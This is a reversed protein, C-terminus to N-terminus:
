FTLHDQNAFKLREETNWVPVDLLCDTKVHFCSWLTFYHEWGLGFVNKKKKVPFLLFQPFQLYAPSIYSACIGTEPGHHCFSNKVKLHFFNNTERNTTVGSIVHKCILILHFCLLVINFQMGKHARSIFNLEM